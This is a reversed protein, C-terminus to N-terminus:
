KEPAAKEAADILAITERANKLTNEDESVQLVQELAMRVDLPHTKYVYRAISCTASAAAEKVDPSLLRESVFNMAGLTKIQALGALALKKEEPRQALELAQLYLWIKKEPPLKAYAMKRLYSRLLENRVEPEDSATAIRLMTEPARPDQTSYLGKLAADRVDRDEDAAGSALIDLATPGSMRSCIRMLSRRTRGTAGAFAEKLAKGVAEKDTCRACIETLAREAATAEYADRASLMWQILVGLSKENAIRGLAALADRRVAADPDKQLGLLDPVAQYVRRAGMARIVERRIGADPEHLAERLAEDVTSGRMADLSARALDQEQQQKGEGAQAAMAALFVVDKENGVGGLAEIATLRLEQGAEPALERTRLASLVAERGATDQRAGLMRVLAIKMEVAAGPVLAAFAETAERGAVTRAMEVAIPGIGKDGGAILAVLIGAARDPQLALMLRLAAARKGLLETANDYITEYIGAAADTDGGAAARDACALLADATEARLAPLATLHAEQLAAIAQPGGINGLAAAAAHAVNPDDDKLAKALSNLSGADRRAGLANILAARWPDGVASPFAKRLEAVAEGTPNAQLAQRARERLKPDPDDLLRGIAEVSEARGIHHLMTLLVGRGATGNPDTMMSAMTNCLAARTQEAGPRGARLCVLEIDRRAELQRSSSRQDAINLLAGRVLKRCDAALAEPTRERPETLGKFEQILAQTERIETSSRSYRNQGWAALALAGLIALTAAVPKM